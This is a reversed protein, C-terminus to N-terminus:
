NQDVDYVFRLPVDNWSIGVAHCFRMWEKATMAPEVGTDVKEWRNLTSPAVGIKVALQAQSLGSAERLEKIPSKNRMRNELNVNNRM